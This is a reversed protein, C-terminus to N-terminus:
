ECNMMGSSATYDKSVSLMAIFLLYILLLLIAIDGELVRLPVFFKIERAPSPMIKTHSIITLFTFLQITKHFKIQVAPSICPSSVPHMYSCM